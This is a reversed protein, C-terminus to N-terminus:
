DPRGSKLAEIKEDILGIEVDLNLLHDELKEIYDEERISKMPM